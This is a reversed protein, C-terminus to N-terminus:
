PVIIQPSREPGWTGAPHDQVGGASATQGPQLRRAQPAATTDGTVGVNRDVGPDQKATRFSYDVRFQGDPTTLDALVQYKTNPEFPRRTYIALTTRLNIGSPWSDVAEDGPHVVHTPLTGDPGVIAAADIYASYQNQDVDVFHEPTVSGMLLTVPYSIQTPAYGGGDIVFNRNISWSYLPVDVQDEKPLLVPTAVHETHPEEFLTVFYYVKGHPTPSIGGNADGLGWGGETFWDESLEGEAFAGDIFSPQLASQRFDPIRMLHDVAEAGSPFEVNGIGYEIYIYERSGTTRLNAIAYGAGGTIPDGTLRQFLNSGTYGPADQSERLWTVPGTTGLLAGVSPNQQTYAITGRAAIQVNGNATMRTVGALRRYCNMRLMADKEDPDLQGSGVLNESCAEDVDFYETCGGLPAALPALVLALIPLRATHM